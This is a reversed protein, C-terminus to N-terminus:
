ALATFHYEPIPPPPRFCSQYLIEVHGDLERLVKAVTLRLREPDSIARLNLALEHEIAPDALLDGDVQADSNNSYISAKVFGSNARDFVKLHATRISEATLLGHLKELLPGVLLAPSTASRLTIHAHLNLWGLAAEAEAYRMYDTRLLQSGPVRTGNMVDHLWAEVGDHTKASLSFDVPFTLSPSASYLDLKTTCVIDAEAIQQEFLYKIDPDRLDTLMGPDILITLPAVRFSQSHYAKLPQLITASLDICSGVPEAFIVDTQSQLRDLSELLNSFRCCFCGGTVQETDLKSAEAFYTDVLGSNQDNMIVAVRMNRKQLLRAASVILSTKGAGLFGGVLVILPATM